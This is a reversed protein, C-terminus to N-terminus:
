ISQTWSLGRQWDAEVKARFADRLLQQHDEPETLDFPTRMATVRRAGPFYKRILDLDEELHSRIM